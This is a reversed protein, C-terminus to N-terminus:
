SAYVIERTNLIERRRFPNRLGRIDVIDAKRGLIGSMQEQMRAIDLLSWKADSAFRVLVDVDSDAGFDQRLVSGFLSLEIIKWTRCFSALQDSSTPLRHNM